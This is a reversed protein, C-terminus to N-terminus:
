RLLHLLWLGVAGAAAAWVLSVLTGVVFKESAAPNGRLEDFRGLGKIAVVIAILAPQGALISGTTALRELVGIWSGGRLVTQDRSDAHLDPKSIRQLVFRTLFYGGGASVVLAAFVIVGVLSSDPVIRGM